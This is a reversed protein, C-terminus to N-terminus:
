SNLKIVDQSPGYEGISLSRMIKEIDSYDHWEITEAKKKTEATRGLRMTETWVRNVEVDMKCLGCQKKEKHKKKQSLMMTIQVDFTSWVGQEFTSWTVLNMTPASTSSASTLTISPSKEFCDSNKLLITPPRGEESIADAKLPSTCLRTPNLTKILDLAERWEQTDESGCRQWVKQLKTASIAPITWRSNTISPRLPHTRPSSLPSTSCVLCRDQDKSDSYSCAWCPTTGSSMANAEIHHTHHSPNRSPLTYLTPFLLASFFLCWIINRINVM